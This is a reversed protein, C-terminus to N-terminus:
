DRAHQLGPFLGHDLSGDDLIEACDPFLFQRMAHTFQRRWFRIGTEFNADWSLELRRGLLHRVYSTVGIYNLALFSSVRMSLPGSFKIKAM